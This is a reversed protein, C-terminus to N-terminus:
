EENVEDNSIIMQFVRLVNRKENIVIIMKSHFQLKTLIECFRRTRFLFTTLAYVDILIDILHILDIFFKLSLHSLSLNSLFFIDITISFVNKSTLNFVFNLEINFIQADFM